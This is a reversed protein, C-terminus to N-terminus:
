LLEPEQVLFFLAKEAAEACFIVKLLLCGATSPM